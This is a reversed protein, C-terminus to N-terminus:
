GPDAEAAAAAERVTREHVAYKDTRYDYSWFDRLWVATARSAPSASSAAAPSRGASPGPTRWSGPAPRVASRGSRTRCCRSGRWGAACRTPSPRTGSRALPLHRQGHRRGRGPSSARAGGLDDPALGALAIAAGWVMAALVVARGHHHVRSTWGSTATAILSGITEATYLLGLIGPRDFVDEALAPFLVVPMAMLMASSTSSTRAWCTAAACPTARAGRQHGAPQAPHDRRDHPYPRMLVFLGTAVVLGAVDVAFCWGVGVVQILM